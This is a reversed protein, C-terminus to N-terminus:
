SSSGKFEWLLCCVNLVASSCFVYSDHRVQVTLHSDSLAAQTSVSLGRCVDFVSM